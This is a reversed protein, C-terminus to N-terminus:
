NQNVFSKGDSRNMKLWDKVIECLKMGKEFWETM